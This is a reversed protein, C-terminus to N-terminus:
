SVLEKVQDRFDELQRRMLLHRRHLTWQELKITDLRNNAEQLHEALRDYERRFEFSGCIREFMDTCDASSQLFVNPLSCRDYCIPIGDRIHM